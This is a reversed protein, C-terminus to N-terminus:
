NNLLGLIKELKEDFNWFKDEMLGLRENVAAIKEEVARYRKENREEIGALRQKFIKENSKENGCIKNEIGKIKTSICEELARQAKEVCNFIDLLKGQWKEEKDNYANVCLHLYEKKSDNTFVSLIQSIELIVETMQKYEYYIALLQYQDFTDGLVSIIMNLMLVVNLILAFFYTLYKMDFDLSQMDEIGFALGFPGVWLTRFNIEYTGSSIASIVGFTITTYAFIFMFSQISWLSKFILIVYYRTVSVARFATIGRVFNVVTVAWDFFWHNPTLLLSIIWATTIIIRCIDLINWSDQFYKKGEQILQLVEMFVLVINVSVFMGFYFASDFDSLLLCLVILNVMIVFTYAYIWKKMVNWRENIYSQLIQTKFIEKNTCILLASLFKIGEASSPISPLPVLAAKLKLPEEEKIVENIDIFDTFCAVPMSSFKVRVSAYGFALVSYQSDLASFFFLHVFESSSLIIDIIDNRVAHFSSIYSFRDSEESIIHLYQLLLDTIRQHKRMTSYYLASRGFGDATFSLTNSKLLQDITETKGKYALFHLPTFSLNSIFISCSSPPIISYNLDAFNKIIGFYSFPSTYSSNFISSPNVTTGPTPIPLFAWFKVIGDQSGTIMTNTTESINLCLVPSPHAEFSAELRKEFLNWIKVLKDIGTSIIYTSFKCLKLDTVAGSHKSFTIEERKGQLNWVKILGDCSGSALFKGDDSSSIVNINDKHGTLSLEEKKTELSFIRIICDYGASAILSSNIFCVSKVNSYNGRLTIIEYKGKFDWIRVNKDKSCSAIFKGDPSFCVSNVFNFHGKLTRELKNKSMDWIKIKHDNSGSAIWLSDPSFAISNVCQSHGSFTSVLAKDRILYAYITEQSSCAFYKSDPSFAVSLIPGKHPKTAYDEFHNRMNYITVKSNDEGVVFFDESESYCISNIASNRQTLEIEEREFRLNWVKLSFDEASSILWSGFPSISMSKIPCLHMSITYNEQKDEINWIKISCDLSGSAFVSKSDPFLALSTIPGFHGFLSFDESKKKLNWIKISRDNSGSILYKNDSTFSLCNIQGSHGSFIFIESKSAFNILSIKAESLSVAFNTNLYDCSLTKIPIISKKLAWDITFSELDWVIVSCDDSCSLLYKSDKTFAVCNISKEHGLLTIIENKGKADWLKISMDSSASAILSNKCNICVSNVSNQHGSLESCRSTVEAFSMGRQSEISKITKSMSNIELSKARESTISFNLVSEGETPKSFREKLDTEM